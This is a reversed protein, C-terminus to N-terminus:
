SKLSYTRVGDERNTSTIARGMKKRLTGSLFGRVSHAQWDTAQMLDDLTAGGPRELLHLVQATKSGRRHARASKNAGSAKQRRKAARAKARLKPQNATGSPHQITQPEPISTRM